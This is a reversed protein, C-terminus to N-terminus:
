ERVLEKINQILIDRTKKRSTNGQKFAICDVEKNYNKTIYLIGKGCLFGFKHYGYKCKTCDFSM